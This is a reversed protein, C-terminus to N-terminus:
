NKDKTTKVTKKTTSKPSQKKFVDDKEKKVTQVRVNGSSTELSQTDSSQSHNKVDVAEIYKEKQEKTVLIAKIIDDEQDFIIKDSEISFMTSIFSLVNRAFTQSADYSIASLINFPAHITVGNIIKTSGHESVECNGGSESALDVLVSGQKMKNVMDSTVLRPAPKGPILATTIVIDQVAIVETLRANQAKKYGESMVQAYGSKAEGDEKYPVEIFAAGLSEVQEKAAARVDFAMVVAGLRKATAIAQLGAVGAGLVLVKAPRITGAATMMMPFARNFFYSADIVARYGALNSQSSVVDMSQAKTIRPLKELSFATIVKDKYAAILDLNQEPKLIGIVVTGQKCSSIDKLSLGSVTVIIDSNSFVDKRTDFLKARQAIYEADVFGAKEGATKEFCVEYGLQSLKGVVEPTLAVRNDHAAVEKVFGIKIM